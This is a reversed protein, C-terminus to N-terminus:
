RRLAERDLLARFPGYYDGCQFEAAEGPVAKVADWRIRRDRVSWDFALAQGDLLACRLKEALESGAIELTGTNLESVGSHM